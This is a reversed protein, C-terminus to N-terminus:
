RWFLKWGYFCWVGAGDGEEESSVETSVVPVQTKDLEKKLNKPAGFCRKKARKLGQATQDAVVVLKKNLGKPRGPKRKKVLSVVIVGGLHALAMERKVGSIPTPTSVSPTEVIVTLAAIPASQLVLPTLLRDLKLALDAASIGPISFSLKSLTSPGVDRNKEVAEDTMLVDPLGKIEVWVPFSDIPVFAVDELGDYEALVFMSQGYFWPSSTLINKWDDAKTFSPSVFCLPDARARM